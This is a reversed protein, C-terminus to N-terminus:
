EELELIDNVLKAKNYTINDKAFYFKGDSLKGDV